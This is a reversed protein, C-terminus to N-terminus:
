MDKHLDQMTSSTANKTGLLFLYVIFVNPILLLMLAKLLYYKELLLIHVM